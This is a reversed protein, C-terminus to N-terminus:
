LCARRSPVQALGHGLAMAKDHRRLPIARVASRRKALVLGWAGELRNSRGLGEVHGTAPWVGGLFVRRVPQLGARALKQQVRILSQHRPRSVAEHANFATWLRWPSLKNMGFLFLTGGPALVRVLEDDIGSERDLLDLAHRAVLLQISDSDVPLSGPHCRLDGHVCGAVLHLRFMEPHSRFGADMGSPAPALSM